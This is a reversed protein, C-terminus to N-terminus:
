YLLMALEWSNGADDFRLDPLEPGAPPLWVAWAGGAAAVLVAGPGAAGAAVERWGAPLPPLDTSSSSCAM